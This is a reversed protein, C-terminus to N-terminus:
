KKSTGVKKFFSTTLKRQGFPTTDTHDEQPHKAKIHDKYNKQLLTKCCVRCKTEASESRFSTKSM